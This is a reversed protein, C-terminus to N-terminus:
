SIKEIMKIALKITSNVDKISFVATPSHLYRTPISLVITPIGVNSTYILAGDTVGGDFLDIQYDIKNKEAVDFMLNRMKKPIITGRGAAEMITIAVGKGLKISSVKAEIGPIDGSITTDIIIAFDPNIRFALTKGGKLGVEEQSSACVYIDTNLNKNLALEELIKILIYCGIRNDVSKGYYLDTNLIGANSKFIIPDGINIIKLVENKSNIGIDIFMDEYKVSKKSDSENMMHPSKTGIIGTIHKNDRNIIEVLQGPLVSDNIGGIKIFYIFGDESIHKVLMGVEDMHAVLMIKKRKIEEKCSSNNISVRGIVNGLNDTETNDCFKSFSEIIIKSINEENGSVGDCLLLKNLLKDM